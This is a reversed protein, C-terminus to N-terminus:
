MSCFNDNRGIRWLVTLYFVYLPAWSCRMAVAHGTHGTCKKKDWAWARALWRYGMIFM